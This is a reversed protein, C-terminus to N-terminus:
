GRVRNVSRKSIQKALSRWYSIPHGTTVEIARGVAVRNTAGIENMFNTVVQATKEDSLGMLRVKLDEWKTISAHFTVPRGTNYEINATIYPSNYNM